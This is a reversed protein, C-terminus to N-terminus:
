YRTHAPQNLRLLGTRTGDIAIETVAANDLRPFVTRYTELPIGLLACLTLRILTNHAVVLVTEGPVEAAIGRLAGAGRAAAEEPPESGPFAGAVPDALFRAVAEPDAAALEDRTRGEMLGFHVERLGDVVRLPLGLAEASPEATRRARSQPSCFVASPKVVAAFGALEDAQRLGEETLAVDSSGAYRNEAHWETQGHRALLLRAVM